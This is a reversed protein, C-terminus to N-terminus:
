KAPPPRDIPDVPVGLARLASVEHQRSTVNSEDRVLTSLASRARPDGLAGLADAVYQRARVDGLARILAGVAGRCHAKVTADLLQRAHLLDISLQLPEGDPRSDAAAPVVEAWWGTLEDCAEGGGREAIALAAPHRWAEQGDHLLAAALPSVPEGLRVLALASWRRM